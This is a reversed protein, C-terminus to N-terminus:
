LTHTLLLSYKKRKKKKIIFAVSQEYFRNHFLLLFFVTLLTLLQKLLPGKEKWLAAQHQLNAKAAVPPFFDSAATNHNVLFQLLYQQSTVYQWDTRSSCLIRTFRQVLERMVTYECSCCVPVNTTETTSLASFYHCCLCVVSKPFHLSWSPIM